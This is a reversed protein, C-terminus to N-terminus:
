NTTLALVSAPRTCFYLPSSEMEFEVYEDRDDPWVYTFLEQGVQNAQSLKASPGFYGRFLDNVGMAFAIGTNAAFAEETTGDPLNFTADYSIIDVGKHHFMNMIGWRMYNSLDDRLMQRGSNNYYQYAAKMNPHSIFKDFTQPDVLLTVGGIAGGNKVSKAITSKISNLKADVDTTPTGLALAVSTQSIGFEAYMDALVAGDPSKCVGKLAQLKMYEQTQDWARRMDTIKEATARALTEDDTSGVQRWGQIDDATLVEKHKFYGLGLSFTEGVREKGSTSAKGGRAVQPLLTTTSYEKDFIIARQNTGRTNFLNLSNIFGYQLPTEVIADVFDQNKFSNYYDRINM